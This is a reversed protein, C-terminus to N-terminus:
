AQESREGTGASELRKGRIANADSEGSTIEEKKRLLM